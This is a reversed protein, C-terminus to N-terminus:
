IFHGANSEAIRYKSTRRTAMVMAQPAAALTVM